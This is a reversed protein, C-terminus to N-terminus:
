MCQRGCMVMSNIDVPIWVYQNVTEQLNTTSGGITITSQNTGDAEDEKWNVTAGSPIEYIVLGEAESDETSIQSATYGNPIPIDTNNGVLVPRRRGEGYGLSNMEEQIESVRDIEEQEAIQYNETAGQAQETLGEEGLSLRIVVASLIILIVITIVLSILTVGEKTSYKRKRMLIKRSEMKM